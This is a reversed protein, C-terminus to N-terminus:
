RRNLEFAREVRERGQRLEEVDIEGDDDFDWALRLDDGHRETYEAIGDDDDDVAILRLEGDSYQESVEFIGDSDVDRIGSVAQGDEFLLRHDVRGDGNRDAEERAVLGETLWQTVREGRVLSYRRHAARRLAQDTLIPLAEVVGLSLAADPVPSGWDMQDSLIQMELAGPRIDYYVLFNDRSITRLTPSVEAPNLSLAPSPEGPGVLAARDVDPFDGYRLTAYGDGQLLTAAQPVRDRFTVDFEPVGDTDRDRTWRRLDGGQLEYRGEVFGDRDEDREMVGTFGNILERLRTRAEGEQLSGYAREVLYKDEVGGLSEFRDIEPRPDETVELMLVSALPDEGGLDFYREIERRREAPNELLAAYSLLLRSYAPSEAELRRLRRLLLPDPSQERNFKLSFLEVDGPFRELGSATVDVADGPRGLANLAESRLRYLRPNEYPPEGVHRDLIRVAQEPQGIRLSVQAYDAAVADLALSGFNGEELAESFLALAEHTRFQAAAAIRGKLALLDPSADNFALGRDILTEAARVNGAAYLEQAADRYLASVREQSDPDPGISLGSGLDNDQGFTPWTTILVLLVAVSMGVLRRGRTGFGLRGYMWGQRRGTSSKHQRMRRRRSM